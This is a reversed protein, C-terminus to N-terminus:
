AVSPLWRNQRTPTSDTQTHTMIGHNQTHKNFHNYYHIKACGMGVQSAFDLNCRGGLINLISHKSSKWSKKCNKKQLLHDGVPGLTSANFHFRSFKCIKKNVLVSKTLKLSKM